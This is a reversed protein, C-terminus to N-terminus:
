AELAKEANEKVLVEVKEKGNGPEVSTKRRMCVGRWREVCAFVYVVCYM